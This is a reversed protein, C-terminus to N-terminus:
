FLVSFSFLCRNLLSEKHAEFEGKLAVNNLPRYTYGVLASTDHAQTIPAKEVETRVILDHKSRLHWVGQAYLDYSLEREQTDERVISEFLFNWEKKEMKLAALLYFAERLSEYRFYGGGFRWLREQDSIDCAVAYHRDVNFNNYGNDLDNNHQLTVSVRRLTDHTQRSEYHAGTTLKPFFDDVLHPSSTTDRLVNIPMQNWFGIDSNFKGFRLRENDGFFYDGYLRETHFITNSSEDSYLGTEKKYVDTAELEVLFDFNDFEGYALLAVDDVDVTRRNKEAIYVSSIYGGIILPSDAVQWGDGFTYEEGHVASCALVLTFILRNVNNMENNYVTKISTM